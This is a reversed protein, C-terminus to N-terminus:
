SSSVNDGYKLTFPNEEREWHFGLFSHDAGVSAPTVALMSILAIVTVFRLSIKKIRM